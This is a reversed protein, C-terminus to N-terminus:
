PTGVVDECGSPYHPFSDADFTLGNLCYDVHGSDPVKFLQNLQDRQHALQVEDYIATGLAAIFILLAAIWLWTTGSSLSWLTASILALGTIGVGVWVTGTGTFLNVTTFGALYLGIGAALLVLIGVLAAARRDHPDLWRRHGNANAPPPLVGPCNVVAQYPEGHEDYRIQLWNHSAHPGLTSCRSANHQATLQENHTPENPNM